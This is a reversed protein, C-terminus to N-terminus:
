APDSDSPLDDGPHFLLEAARTWTNRRAWTRGAEGLRRRLAPDEILKRFASTLEVPHQPSVLFGTEGDAVAEAVGGVRHAVVPLGHASAELYVLGFGEVSHGHDISTLAFIDAQAYIRDLDEDSVNGLFRVALGPRKAADRLAQEYHPKSTSGAIWYEVRPLLEAPLSQLAQLTLLQGKRPHLRGVTLVIVKGSDDPRPNPLASAFDGRLAGPTLFTKSAAEPFRECLLDKTFRTLTSVRFAHRLLRRTFWRTIPDAHFRLIESGHFTLVLRRPRFARVPLIMMLALMPGPEPLYVTARRLRRRERIVWVILKLRCLFNHSGALPLRRITFPWPKEEHPAARQAWVEIPHGLAAGARAIEETFTAIGGRKPSFEHTIVFVPRPGTPKM